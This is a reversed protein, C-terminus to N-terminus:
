RPRRSSGRGRPCPRPPAPGRAEGLPGRAGCGAGGWADPAEGAGGGRAPRPASQRGDRRRSAQRGDPRRPRPSSTRRCAPGADAALRGAWAEEEAGRGGHDRRTRLLLDHHLLLGHTAPCTGAGPEPRPLTRRRGHLRAFPLPALRARIGASAGLRDVRSPAVAASESTGALLEGGGRGLGQRGGGVPAVVRRDLSRRREGSSRSRRPRCRGAGRRPRRRPAPWPCRGAPAARGPPRAATSAVSGSGAPRRSGGRPRAASGAPAVRHERPHVRRQGVLVRESIASAPPWGRRRASRRLASRSRAPPELLLAPQRGGGPVHQVLRQGGVVPERGLHLSSSSTSASSSAAPSVARSPSILWSRTAAPRRTRRARARRLPRLQELLQAVRRLQHRVEVLLLGSRQRQVPIARPQELQEGLPGELPALHHEGGALLRVEVDVALARHQRGLPVEEDAPQQQRSMWRAAGRGGHRHAPQRQARIREGRRHAEGAVEGARRQVGEDDALLGLAVARALPDLSAAERRRAATAMTSSTTM